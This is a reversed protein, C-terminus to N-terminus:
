IVLMQVHPDQTTKNLKSSPLQLCFHRMVKYKKIFITKHSVLILYLALFQSEM